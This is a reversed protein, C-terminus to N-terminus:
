TNKLLGFKAELVKTYLEWNIGSVDFGQEILTERRINTISKFFVKDDKSLINFINNFQFMGVPVETIYKCKLFREVVDFDVMFPFQLCVTRVLYNMELTSFVTKGESLKNVLQYVIEEYEKSLNVQKKM